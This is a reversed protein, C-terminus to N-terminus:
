QNAKSPKDIKYGDKNLSKISFGLSEGTEADYYITSVANEVYGYEMNYGKPYHIITVWVMRDKSISPDLDFETYKELLEQYTILEKKLYEADDKLSKEDVYGKMGTVDKCNKPIDKNPKYKEDVIVPKFDKGESKIAREEFGNTQDKLFDYRTISKVNAYILGTTSLLVLLMFSVFLIKKNKM